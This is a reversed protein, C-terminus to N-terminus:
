FDDWDSKPPKKAAEWRKQFAGLKGTIQVGQRGPPRHIARHKASHRLKTALAYKLCALYDRNGIELKPYFDETGKIPKWAVNECDHVIGLCGEVIQLKPKGTPGVYLADQLRQLFEEDKKEDYSTPRVRVGESNLVEIFSSFGEGGTYDGSGFNDCVIDIVAFQQLWNAKLWRAFDRPLVKQKFESLYVLRDDPDAALVIAHLDKSPHPDIAICAPWQQFDAALKSSPTVHVERKFLGALALGHADFFGGEIRSERERETLHAEFEEIFGEQLNKKNVRSSMKFFDVDPHKGLEWEAYMERVWTSKAGIPTGILLFKAEYGKTRGGRLLSIFISRPIPEDAIALDVEIGEFLLPDQDQSMFVIQSGNDFTVRSIQPKGDKHLQDDRIDFWKRLGNRGLYVDRVKLPSDLVIVVNAPVKTYEETIPNYGKCIWVAEQIAATTKGAANGSLNFRIKKRSQHMRLQGENPTYALLQQRKRKKKEELADLIALKEEKPLQAIQEPTLRAKTKKKM